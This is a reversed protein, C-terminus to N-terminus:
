TRVACSRRTGFSYGGFFRVFVFRVFAAARSDGQKM